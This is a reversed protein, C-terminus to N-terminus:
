LYKLIIFNQSDSHFNFPVYISFYIILNGAGTNHHRNFLALVLKEFKSM